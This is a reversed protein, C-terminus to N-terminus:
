ALLVFNVRFAAAVLLCMYEFHRLMTLNDPFFMCFCYLIM